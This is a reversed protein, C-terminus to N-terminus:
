SVSTALNRRAGLKSGSLAQKSTQQVPESIGVQGSNVKPWPVRASDSEYTRRFQGDQGFRGIQRAWSCRARAHLLSERSAECAVCIGSSSVTDFQSDHCGSDFMISVRTSLVLYLSLFGKPEFGFGYGYRKSDTLLGSTSPPTFCRLFLKQLQVQMAHIFQLGYYTEKTLPTSYNALQQGKRDPMRKANQQCLTM